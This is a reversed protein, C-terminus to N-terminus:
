LDILPSTPSCLQSSMTFERMTSNWYDSFVGQLDIVESAQRYKAWFLHGSKM